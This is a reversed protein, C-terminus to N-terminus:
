KVLPLHPPFTAPFTVDADPHLARVTSENTCNYWTNDYFNRPLSGVPLSASLIQVYVRPRRQQGPLPAGYKTRQACNEDVFRFARVLRQSRWAKNTVLLTVSDEGSEESSMAGPGAREVIGKLARWGDAGPYM